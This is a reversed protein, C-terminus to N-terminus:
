RLGVADALAEVSRQLILKVVDRESLFDVSADLFQLGIQICPQKCVVFLSRVASFMAVTFRGHLGKPICLGDRQVFGDMRMYILTLYVISM